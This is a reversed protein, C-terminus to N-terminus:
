EEASSWAMKTGTATRPAVEATMVPIAASLSAAGPSNDKRPLVLYLGSTAAVRAEM